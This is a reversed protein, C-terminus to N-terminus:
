TGVFTNNIGTTTYRGTNYGVFTNATGSTNNEGSYGGIFTNITGTTNSSGALYGIYTAFSDDQATAGAQHGIMVNKNGMTNGYGAQYGIFINKDGTSNNFGADNGMFVNYEGLSNTYYGASAGIFTNYDESTAPSTLSAGADTGYLTDYTGETGALPSGICVFMAFFLLCVIIRTKMEIGGKILISGWETNSGFYDARCYIDNFSTFVDNNYFFIFDAYMKM